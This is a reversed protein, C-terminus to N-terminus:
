SDTPVSPSLINVRRGGDLGDTQGDTLRDTLEDSKTDAIVILVMLLRYIFGIFIYITCM